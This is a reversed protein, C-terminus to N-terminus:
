KKGKTAADVDIVDAKPSVAAKEATELQETLLQYQGRLESQRLEIQQKQKELDNFETEAQTRRERLLQSDM